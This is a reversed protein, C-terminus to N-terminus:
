SVFCKETFELFLNLSYIFGQLLSFSYSTTTVVSRVRLILLDECSLVSSFRTTSFLVQFFNLGTHSKFGHGRHYRHLARGFSSVLWSPVPWHTPDLYVMWTIFSSKLYLFNMNASRHLFSIAEWEESKKLSASLLCFIRESRSQVSITFIHFLQTKSTNPENLPQM